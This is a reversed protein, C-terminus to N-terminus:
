LPPIDTLIRHDQYTEAVVVSWTKGEPHDVGAIIIM